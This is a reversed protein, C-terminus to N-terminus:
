RSNARGRGGARSAAIRSTTAAPRRAGCGRNGAAGSPARYRSRCRGGPRRAARPRWSARRCRGRAPRPTRCGCARDGEVVDDEVLLQLAGVALELLPDHPARALEGRGLLPELLLPPPQALALAKLLSTSPVTACSRFFGSPTMRPRVSISFSSMAAVGIGRSLARACTPWMRWDARRRVRMTSLRIASAMLPRGRCRSGGRPRDVENRQDALHRLGVAREGALLLWVSRARPM